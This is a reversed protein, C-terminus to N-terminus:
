RAGFVAVEKGNSGDWVRLLSDEGGGILTAGNATSAGAQM